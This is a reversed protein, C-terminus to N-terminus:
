MKLLPVFRSKICPQVCTRSLLCSPLTQANSTIRKVQTTWSGTDPHYLLLGQAAAGSKYNGGIVVMAKLTASWVANYTSISQPGPAPTTVETVTQTAVDYTTFMNSYISGGPGADGGLIYVKNASPNTVVDFDRRSNDEIGQPNVETWTGSAIDFINVFSNPIVNPEAATDRGFVIFSKNDASRGGSHYANYPGLQLANWAPKSTTWSTTLDLAWLSQLLQDGQLAGGHIYFKNGVVEHAAGGCPQPQGQANAFQIINNNNSFFLCALACLIRTSTSTSSSSSSFSSPRRM